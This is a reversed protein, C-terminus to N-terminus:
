WDGSAGGGGSDGGGFSGFDNNSSSNNDNYYSESIAAQSIAQAAALVAAAEAKIRREDEEGNHIITKMYDIIKNLDDNLVLCNINNNLNTKLLNVKVLFNAVDDDTAYEMFRNKYLAIENEYNTVRTMAQKVKYLDQSIINCKSIIRDVKRSYEDYLDISKDLDDKCNIISNYLGELNVVDQKTPYQRDFGFNCGFLDLENKDQISKDVSMYVQSRIKEINNIKRCKERFSLEYQGLNDRITLCKRYIDELTKSLLEDYKNLTLSDISQLTNLEKCCKQYYEETKKTKNITPLTFNHIKEILKNIEDEIEKKRKKNRLYKYIGTLIGTLFGIILVIYLIINFRKGSEISKMRAIEADKQKKMEFAETGLINKIEILANQIGETYNGEKFKPKVVDQLIRGSEIDTLYGEIGYGTHIRSKRDEMSFVLLIGDNTYKKGIGLRKFQEQSYDEISQGELNRVTIIGIEINTQKEYNSIWSNISSEEEDPIFNGMDTIYSTPTFTHIDQGKVGFTILMVLLLSLTYKM